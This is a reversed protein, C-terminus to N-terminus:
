EDDSDSDDTEGDDSSDENKKKRDPKFKFGLVEFLKKKQEKTLNNVDKEKDDDKDSPFKKVTKKKKSMPKFGSKDIKIIAEIQKQSLKYEKFLNKLTDYREELILTKIINNINIFDYINMGQMYNNHKVSQIVKKNIHMISTKNFDATYRCRFPLCNKNPYKNIVYSPAVCTLFGHVKQLNWSQNSYIVGDIKDGESMYKSIDTIMNIKKEFPLKSYQTTINSIYNEHFLLPISTRETEYIIQANEMGVYYSMLTCTSEYIGPDINKQVAGVFYNLVDNRTIKNDKFIYKLEEWMILLRRVDNQCHEVVNDIIQEAGATDLLIQENKIIKKSFEALSIDSPKNLYVVETTKAKKLGNIVKNHDPPTIIIIPLKKYTSNHKMLSKIIDKECKNTLSEIQDIVIATNIKSFTPDFFSRQSCMKEYYDKTSQSKKDASDFNPTKKAFNNQKLLLDVVIKKGIGHSGVIIMNPKLNERKIYEDREKKNKISKIHSYMKLYNDIVVIKDKNDIIDDVTEPRYKKIWGNNSM